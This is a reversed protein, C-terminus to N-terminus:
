PRLGKMASLGGDGLADATLNAMPWACYDAAYYGAPRHNGSLGLGGFPAASSAGTTPRNLNVIGARLEARFREFLDPQDTLLGAALGFRTDNAAALAAGFDAVRTLKLLPGFVEEDPVERAETVDILGPSVYAPGLDLREARLIAAGGAALLGDQAELVRSAASPSIVPGMFPEPQGGPPGVILRAALAKVAEAIRAGEPGDRVILRRACTCRQGSSVYASQVITAAAAAVDAVDWVVLPANGGLELACIVDLRGALARHIAQGAAVGGTFLVGKTRADGVLQEAQARGGQVLNVVGPPAGAEEWLRVTEIATLPAHESPKFVVTNGALLAPVIHGNPLHGPFNFPGLVVMPGHPRHEVHMRAPGAEGDKVGTREHYAKLSIAGKGAMAGVEGAADWLPKGVEHAITATLHDKREAVLASFREILAAREALPMAAWGPFANHAARMAAGIQEASAEEGEWLAEGDAPRVSRFTAGEGASWVGGIFQAESM